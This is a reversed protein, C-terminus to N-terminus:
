EVTLVSNMTGYPNLAWSSNDPDLAWLGDLIFKYEHAGPAVPVSAVYTGGKQKRMPVPQWGNFSGAVAIQKVPSDPTVAFRITGKKRGKEFM